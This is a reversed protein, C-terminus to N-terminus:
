YILYNPFFYCASRIQISYANHHSHLSTTFTTRDIMVVSTHLCCRHSKWCGELVGDRNQATWNQPRPHNHGELVGDRNQATWNQPRPHNHGELVGDRNQSTWNQRRPHKSLAPAWDRSQAGGELVALWM